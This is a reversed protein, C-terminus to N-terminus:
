LAQIAKSIKKAVTPPEDLVFAGVENDYPFRAVRAAKRLASRVANVTQKWHYDSDLRGNDRHIKPSYKDALRMALKRKKAM